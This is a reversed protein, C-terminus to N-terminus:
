NRSLCNGVQSLPLTGNFFDITCTELRYTFQGRSAGLQAIRQLDGTYVFIGIVIMLVGSAVKLTNMHRNLRRLLGKLRDLAIAALIFPVGMGLSYVVLLGAAQLLNGDNSAALTLITGYIPGICPTWGAAFIIGVFFSGMYGLPKKRLEFRKEMQLFPLTIVGTFHIGLIIILVGGAKM